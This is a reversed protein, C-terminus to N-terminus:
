AALSLIQAHFVQQNMPENRDRQRNRERIEALDPAQLKRILDLCEAVSKPDVIIEETRALPAAFMAFDEMRKVQSEILVPTSDIAQFSNLNVNTMRLETRRSIAQRVVFVPLQDDSLRWSEAHYGRYNFRQDECLFYLQAPEYSLALNIRGERIDQEASLKWGAQQLSYTDSRFGAFHVECARSLFRPESQAM